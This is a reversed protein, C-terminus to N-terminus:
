IIVERLSKRLKVVYSLGLGFPYRGVITVELWQQFNPLLLRSRALLVYLQQFHKATYANHMTKFCWCLQMHIEYRTSLYLQLPWVHCFEFKTPNQSQKFGPLYVTFESEFIKLDFCISNFTRKESLNLLVCFEMQYHLISQNGNSKYLNIATGFTIENPALDAPFTYNCDM